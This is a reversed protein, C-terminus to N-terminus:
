KLIGNFICEYHTKSKTINPSSSPSPSFDSSEPQIWGSGTEVGWKGRVNGRLMHMDVLTSSRSSRSSRVSNRTITFRNLNVRVYHEFILNIIIYYINSIYPKYSFLLVLSLGRFIYDMVWESEDEKTTTLRAKAKEFRGQDNAKKSLSEVLSEVTTRGRYLYARHYKRPSTTLLLLHSYDVVLHM